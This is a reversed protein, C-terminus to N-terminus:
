EKYFSSYLEINKDFLDFTEFNRFGSCRYFSQKNKNAEVFIKSSRNKLYNFNLENSVDLYYYEISPSNINPFANNYVIGKSEYHAKENLLKTGPYAQIPEGLQVINKHAHQLIFNDLQELEVLNDFPYGYIYTVFAYLGDLACRQLLDSAKSIYNKPNKTKKMHLLTSENIAEVGVFINWVNLSLLDDWITEWGSEVGCNFNYRFHSSYDKLVSLLERKEWKKFLHNSGGLTLITDKPYLDTLVQLEKQIQKIPKELHFNDANCFQCLNWCGRSIEIAPLYNLPNNVLSFDISELPSNVVIKRGLFEQANEIYGSIGEYFECSMLTPFQMHQGGFIVKYQKHLQMKKVIELAFNYNTAGCISFGIIQPRFNDLDEKLQTYWDEHLWLEICKVDFGNDKLVSSAIYYGLPFARERLNQAIPYIMLLNNQKM